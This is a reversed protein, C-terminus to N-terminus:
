IIMNFVSETKNEFTPKRKLGWTKGPIKYSFNIKWRDLLSLTSSSAIDALVDHMDTDSITKGWGLVRSLDNGTGLPVIGVEPYYTPKLTGYIYNLVWSATGDGGAAFIRWRPLDKFKNLSEIGDNNLDIVQVPNLYSYFSRTVEEGKRGGSKTNICVILPNQNIGIDFTWKEPTPQEEEPNPQIVEKKHFSKKVREISSSVVSRIKKAMNSNHKEYTIDAPKIILSAFEGYDCIEDIKRIVIM